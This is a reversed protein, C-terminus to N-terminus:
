APLVMSVYTRVIIVIITLALGGGGGTEWTKGCTGVYAHVFPITTFHNSFSLPLMDLICAVNCVINCWFLDCLIYWRM